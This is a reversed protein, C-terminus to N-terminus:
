TRGSYRSRRGCVTPPRRQVIFIKRVNAGLQLHFTFHQGDPLRAVLLGCLDCSLWLLIPRKHTRTQESLKGAAYM